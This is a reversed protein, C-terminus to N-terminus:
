ADDVGTRGCFNVIEKALLPARQVIVNHGCDFELYRAGAIGEALARSHVPPVLVDNRAGVVLTPMRLAALDARVDCQIALEIQEASGDPVVEGIVDLLQTRTEGDLENVYEPSMGIVLLYRALTRRDGALLDRWLELGLREYPDARGSGAVLVLARVRKQHRVAARIAVSAGFSHGLVAFDRLGAADAAAVARDALSDLALPAASRPTKGSGPLDVAVTTFTRLLRAVIPSFSGVGTGGVGHVLVLGPGTGSVWASLPEM